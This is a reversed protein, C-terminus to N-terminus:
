SLFQRILWFKSVSVKGVLQKQEYLGWLIHRLVYPYLSFFSKMNQYSSCENSLTEFFAFFHKGVFHLVIPKVSCVILHDDVTLFYSPLDNFHITETIIVCKELLFGFVLRSSMLFIHHRLCNNLSIGSFVCHLFYFVKSM